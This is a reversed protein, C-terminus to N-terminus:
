LEDDKSDSYYFSLMKIQNHKLFKSIITCKGTLDNICSGIHENIEDSM